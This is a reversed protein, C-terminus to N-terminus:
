RVRDHPRCAHCSTRLYLQVQLGVKLTTSSGPTAQVHIAVRCCTALKSSNGPSSTASMRLTKAAARRKDANRSILSLHINHVKRATQQSAARSKPPAPVTRMQATDYHTDGQQLQFPQSYRKHSAFLLIMRANRMGLM